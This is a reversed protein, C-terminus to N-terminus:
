RGQLLVARVSGRAAHPSADSRVRGARQGMASEASAHPPARRYYVFLGGPAAEESIRGRVHFPDGGAVCEEAGQREVISAVIADEDQVEVDDPSLASTFRLNLGRTVDARM